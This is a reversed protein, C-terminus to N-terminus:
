DDHASQGKESRRWESERKILQVFSEVLQEKRKYAYDNVLAILRNTVDKYPEIVKSIAYDLFEHRLTDLALEREEDYVCIYRGRAQGSVRSSNSPMYKVRLDYGAELIKKLRELETELVM